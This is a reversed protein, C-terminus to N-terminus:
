VMSFVKSMLMLKLLFVNHGVVVGKVFSACLVCCTRTGTLLGGADVNHAALTFHNQQGRQSFLLFLSCPFNAKDDSNNDTYSFYLM